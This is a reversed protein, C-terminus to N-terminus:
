EDGEFVLEVPCTLGHGGGEIITETGSFGGNESARLVYRIEYPIDRGDVPMPAIFIASGLYEGADNRLLEFEDFVIATEDLQTILLSEAEQGSCDGSFRLSWLGAKPAEPAPAPAPAMTGCANLAIVLLLAFISTLRTIHVPQM